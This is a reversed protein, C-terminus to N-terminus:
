SSRSGDQGQRVLHVVVDDLTAQQGDTGTAQRNRTEAINTCWQDDLGLAEIEEEPTLLRREDTADDHASSWPPFEAHSIIVLSGGHHVLRSARQLIETRPLEVRSHLFSATVLDYREGAPDWTVLDAVVLEM